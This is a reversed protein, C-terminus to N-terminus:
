WFALLYSIKVFIEPTEAVVQQASTVRCVRRFWRQSPVIMQRCQKCDAVDGAFFKLPFIPVHHFNWTSPTDHKLRWDHSLRSTLLFTMYWFKEPALDQESSPWIHVVLCVKSWFEWLYRVWVRVLRHWSSLSSLSFLPWCTQSAGTVVLLECGDSSIAPDCAICYRM